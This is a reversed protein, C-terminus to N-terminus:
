QETDSNFIKAKEVPLGGESDSEFLTAHYLSKGNEDRIYGDEDPEGGLYYDSIETIGLMECLDLYVRYTRFSKGYNNPHYASDFFYKVAFIYNEAEGLVNDFSFTEIIFSEFNDFWEPGMERAEAIIATEAVPAFNYYVRAGNKQALEIEYNLVKVCETTTIDVKEGNKHGIASEYQYMKDFRISGGIKYLTPDNFSYRKDNDYECWESYNKVSDMIREYAGGAKTFRGSILTSGQNIEAFTSLINKYYSIDVARYFNMMSELYTLSKWYVEPYGM